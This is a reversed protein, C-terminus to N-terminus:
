GGWLYQWTVAVGTFEPGREHRVGTTGTIKITHGGKLPLAVNAGFRFTSIRTDKKVGNVKTRGGIAYGADLAAWIRRRPMTHIVHVKIAGLPYQELVNGGWFDANKTFFWGSVYSELIWSGTWYSTGVQPRFTWRNSGLNILKSPDYQGLPPIVQLSAGLISRPRYDRFGSKRMAPAGAFNVSLRARPDGFGTRSASSDRGSLAGTWDGGAFPVIVDVKGSMGFFDIARVYAGVVTSLKANLNDIPVAPDLLIDGDTYAYGALVFNVGVPVNTLGRPELEQASSPWAYLVLSIFCVLAAPFVGRRKNRGRFFIDPNYAEM